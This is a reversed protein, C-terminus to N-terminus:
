LTYIYYIYYLIIDLELTNNMRSITSRRKYRPRYFFGM